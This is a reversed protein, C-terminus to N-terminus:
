NNPFDYSLGLRPPYKGQGTPSGESYNWRADAM